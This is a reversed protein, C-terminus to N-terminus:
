YRELARKCSGADKARCTLEVSVLNSQENRCLAFPWWNNDPVADRFRQTIEGLSPTKTENTYATSANTLTISIRVLYGSAFLTDQQAHFRKSAQSGIYYFPRGIPRPFRNGISHLTGALKLTRLSCRYAEEGSGRPIYALLIFALFGVM